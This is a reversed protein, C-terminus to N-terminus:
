LKSTTCICLAERQLMLTLTAVAVMSIIIATAPAATRHTRRLARVSSKQLSYHTSSCKLSPCFSYTGHTKLSFSTFSHLHSLLSVYLTYMGRKALESVIAIVDKTCLPHSSVYITIIVDKCRCWGLSGGFLCVRWLRELVWCRFLLRM